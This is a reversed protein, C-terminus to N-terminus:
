DFGFKCDWDSVMEEGKGVKEKVKKDEEVLRKGGGMLGRPVEHHTTSFQNQLGGGLGLNRIRSLKKNM